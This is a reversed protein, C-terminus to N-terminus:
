DGAWCGLIVDAVTVAVSASSTPPVGFQPPLGTNDVLLVKWDKRVVVSGDTAQFAAQGLAALDRSKGLRSVLADYYSHHRDLELTGQGVFRILRRPDFQLLRVYLRLPPRGVAADLGQGVRWPGPGDGAPGGEFLGEGFHTVAINRGTEPGEPDVTRRGTDRWLLGVGDNRGSPSPGPTQPARNSPLLPWGSRLTPIANRVSRRRRKRSSLESPRHSSSESWSSM